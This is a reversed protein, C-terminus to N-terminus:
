HGAAASAAQGPIVYEAPEGSTYMLFLNALMALAALAVMGMGLFAPIRYFVLATDIVDPAAGAARLSGEALGGGM